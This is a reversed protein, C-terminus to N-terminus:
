ILESNAPDEPSETDDTAGPSEAQETGMMWLILILSIIRSDAYDKFGPYSMSTVCLESEDCGTTVKLKQIVYAQADLKSNLLIDCSFLM